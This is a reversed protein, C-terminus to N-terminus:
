LQTSIFNYLLTYHLEILYSHQRKTWNPICRWFGGEPYINMSKKPQSALLPQRSTCAHPDLITASKNELYLVPVAYVSDVRIAWM